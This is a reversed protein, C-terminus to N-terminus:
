AVVKVAAVGLGGLAKGGGVLFAQGGGSLALYVAGGFLVLGFLGVGLIYPWMEDWYAGFGKGAGTVAGDILGGVGLGLSSLTEEIGNTFLEIGTAATEAANARMERALRGGSDILQGARSTAGTVAIDALRGPAQAAQTLALGTEKAADNVEAFWALARSELSGEDAGMAWRGSRYFRAQRRHDAARADALSAAVLTYPDWGMTLAQNEM